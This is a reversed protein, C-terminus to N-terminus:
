SATSRLVAQRRAPSARTLSSALLGGVAASQMNAFNGCNFIVVRLETSVRAYIACSPMIKITYYKRVSSLTATAIRANSHGSLRM